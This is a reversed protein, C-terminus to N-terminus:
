AVACRVHPPTPLHKSDVKIFYSTNKLACCNKEDSADGCDAVGDCHWSLPYCYSTDLCQLEGQFISTM